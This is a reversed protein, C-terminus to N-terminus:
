LHRLGRQRLTQPLVGRHRLLAPSLGECLGPQTLSKHWQQDSVASQGTPIKAAGQRDYRSLKRRTSAPTLVEQKVQPHPVGEQLMLGLLLDPQQLQLQPPWGQLCQQGLHPARQLQQM